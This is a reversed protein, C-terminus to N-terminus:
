KEPWPYPMLESIRIQKIENREEIIVVVDIGSKLSSEYILQKCIHCNPGTIAVIDKGGHIAAHALATAEAHMTLTETDSIYSTGQYVNGSKVMVAASFGKDKEPYTNVMAEEAVQLMKRCEESTLEYYKKNGSIKKIMNKQRAFVGEPNNDAAKKDVSAFAYASAATRRSGADPSAPRFFATSLIINCCICLESNLM